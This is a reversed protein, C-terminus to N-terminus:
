PPAIGGTRTGCRPMAAGFYPNQLQAETQLWDAGKADLAMPCHFLNLARDSAEPHARLAAILATSAGAFATRATKLDSLDASAVQLATGKAAAALRTWAARAAGLDDAALARRVDLYPTITGALPPAEAKPPPEAAQAKPAPKARRPRKAPPEPAPGAPKSATEVPMSTPQSTPAPSMMSPWARIQMASDIKFAGEVVVREGERLGSRVVYVDGARPGLQVERGEYMPEDAGPVEVYVVARTGTLLAASAPIVLPPEPNIEPVGYGLEEARVLRMGCIECRGAADAMVHPHMPCVYHEALEPEMLRGEGALASQVTVRAFMGPKLLGDPNPVSIRVRTARTTDDLYPDIYAVRGTFVRGPVAAVEFRVPQGFRLWPLHQEFAWAEVWVWDLEAIRYLRTGTQVYTGEVQAQEIVVGSQPSYITIRDDPRSQKELKELQHSSLGFRRLKARVAELTDAAQARVADPAGSLREVTRRAQRLEQHATILDPSYIQYLHDGKRVRMGRYDVFMRDIRGPLWATIDALRTSDYAIKGSLRLTHEVFRREVPATRVSALARAADSLPLHHHVGDHGADSTLPILDMGCIPCKGPGPMQTPPHMSCTWAQAAALTEPPAPPPPDGGLWLGVLLAALVAVPVGAKRLLDLRM